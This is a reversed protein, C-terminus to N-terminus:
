FNSKLNDNAPNINNGIPLILCYIKFEFFTM